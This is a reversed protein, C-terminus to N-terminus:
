EACSLIGNKIIERIPEFFSVHGLPYGELIDLLDATSIEFAGGPQSFRFQINVAENGTIISTITLALDGVPPMDIHAPNFCVELETGAGKTSRIAFSGGTQEANQRLLPLGMGIKRTTRTTYFPDTARQLEDADMGCGNDTIRITLWGSVEQWHIFLETAAARLSNTAIDLIHLSLDNM